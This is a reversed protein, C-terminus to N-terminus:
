RRALFDLLPAYEGPSARVFAETEMAALLFSPRGRTRGFLVEAIQEARPEPIRSTLVFGDTPIADTLAVLALERAKPGAHLALASRVDEETSGPITVAAVDAEGDLVADLAAPHSGYFVQTSFVRDPDVGNKRLHHAVLLYGGFSLSDVWAARMGALREIRTTATRRAVLASRYSAAGHRVSKFIARATPELRACLSAPAWVLHAEGALARTELEHYSAAVEGSADASLEGALASALLEARATAKAKGLSPPLLLRLLVAEM